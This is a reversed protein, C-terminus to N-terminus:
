IYIYMCVGAGSLHRCALTHAGVLVAERESEICVCV